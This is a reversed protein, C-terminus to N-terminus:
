QKAYSGDPWVKYKYELAVGCVEFSLTVLAENSNFSNVYIYGAREGGSYLTQSGYIDVSGMDTSITTLANLVDQNSQFGSQQVSYTSESNSYESNSPEPSYFLGYLGDWLTPGFFILLFILLFWLISIFDPYNTKNVAKTDASTNINNKTQEM